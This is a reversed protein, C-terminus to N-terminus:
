LVPRQKINKLCSRLRRKSKLRRRFKKISYIRDVDGCHWFKRRLSDEQSYDVADVGDDDGNDSSDADEAEV